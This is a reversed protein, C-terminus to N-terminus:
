QFHKYIALMGVCYNCLKVIDYVKSNNYIYLTYGLHVTDAMIYM